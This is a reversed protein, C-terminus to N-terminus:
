MKVVRVSRSESKLIYVGPKLTSIDLLNSGPKLSGQSLLEGNISFLQYPQQLTGEFVVTAKDRIPNPYVTLNASQLHDPVGFYTLPATILTNWSPALAAIRERLL